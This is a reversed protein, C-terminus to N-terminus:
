SRWLIRKGHKATHVIAFGLSAALYFDWKSDAKLLDDFYLHRECRDSIITQRYSYTYYRFPYNKNGWYYTTTMATLNFLFSLRLPSIRLWM